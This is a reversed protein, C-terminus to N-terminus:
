PTWLHFRSPSIKLFYALFPWFLGFIALFEIFISFKVLVSTKM